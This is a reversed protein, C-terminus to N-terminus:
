SWGDATHKKEATLLPSIRIVGITFDGIHLAISTESTNLVRKKGQVCREFTAPTQEVAKSASHRSQGIAISPTGCLFYTPMQYLSWLKKNFNRHFKGHTTTTPNKRPETVFSL